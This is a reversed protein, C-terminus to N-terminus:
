KNENPNWNLGKKLSKNFDSLNKKNAELIDKKSEGEIQEPTLDNIDLYTSQNIKKVSKIMNIKAFQEKQENAMKKLYEFRQQKSAGRKILEANVTELNSMVLLDNISSYDRMNQGNLAKEPNSEKWEKATYGYLAVNLLDAENAYEIWKKSESFKSNPIIHKQVADTHLAYNVKTMVRRVDWELNYQNNELEKLRQYEKIIYLKFMPSIWSGFEFAIDKHAYTGGYRGSKSFIGIADTTEVWEKPSLVFSNSGSENRFHEFEVVKFKPNYIQEWAGLFEVTSRSKIWTKIRDAARVDDDKGKAMDTLCIYDEKDIETISISVNDVVIKNVKSM